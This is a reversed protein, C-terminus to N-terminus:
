TLLHRFMLMMMMVLLVMMMMMVSDSDPSMVSDCLMLDQILSM